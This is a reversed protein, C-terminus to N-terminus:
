LLPNGLCNFSEDSFVLIFTECLFANIDREGAAADGQPCFMRDRLNGLSRNFDKGGEAEAESLARLYFQIIIIKFGKIDGLMVRGPVHMISKINGVLNEKTGM